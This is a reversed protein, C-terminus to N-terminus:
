TRAGATPKMPNTEPKTCPSWNGSSVADALAHVLGTMHEYAEDQDSQALATVTGSRLAMLGAGATGTSRLFHRRSVNMNM